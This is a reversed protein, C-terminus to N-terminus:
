TTESREIKNNFLYFVNLKILIAASFFFAM